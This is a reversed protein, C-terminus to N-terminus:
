EVGPIRATANSATYPRSWQLVAPPEKWVEAGDLKVILTSPQSLRGIGYHWGAGDTELLLVIGPM